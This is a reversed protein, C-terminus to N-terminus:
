IHGRQRCTYFPDSLLCGLFPPSMTKGMMLWHPSETAMSVLTNIWDAWFVMHQREGAGTISCYLIQDLNALQSWLYELKFTHVVVSPCRVMPISYAWRALRRSLHALFDSWHDRLLHLLSITVTNLLPCNAIKFIAATRGYKNISWFRKWASMLCQSSDMHLTEVFNRCYNRLLHSLPSFWLHSGTAM